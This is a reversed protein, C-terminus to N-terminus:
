GGGMLFKILTYAVGFLLPLFLLTGLTINSYLKISLINRISNFGKELIIFLGDFFGDETPPLPTTEFTEIFGNHNYYWFAFNQNNIEEFSDYDARPYDDYTPIVFTFTFIDNLEYYVNDFDLSNVPHVAFLTDPAILSLENSLDYTALIRNTDSITLSAPGMNANPEYSFFELPLNFYSVNSQNINEEIASLQNIYNFVIKYYRITGGGSKHYSISMDTNAKRTLSTNFSNPSIITSPIQTANFIPPTIVSSIFTALLLTKM